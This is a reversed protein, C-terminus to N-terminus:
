PELDEAIWSSGQREFRTRHHLRNEGSIWFEVTRPVMLYGGWFPPRPIPSAPHKRSLEEWRAVLSSRSDLVRSQASAWASIRHGIPRSEFYADSDADSLRQAEGEFRVQKDTKPWYFAAACSPNKELERGKRSEYNTFFRVGGKSVGRFLVIRVSPRGESDVTALAMSDAQQCGAAKAEEYWGLFRELPEM